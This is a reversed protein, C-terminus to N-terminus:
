EAYFANYLHGVADQIGLTFPLDFEEVTDHGFEVLEAETFHGNDVLFDYQEWFLSSQEVVIADGHRDILTRLSPTLWAEIQKEPWRM